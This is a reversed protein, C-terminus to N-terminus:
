EEPNGEEAEGPMATPVVILHDPDEGPVNIAMLNIHALWARFPGELVGLMTVNFTARTPTTITNKRQTTM